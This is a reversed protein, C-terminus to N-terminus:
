LSFRKGITLGYVMPDVKVDGISTGNVKAEAKIAIWRIDIGLLWDNGLKFDGGAQVAGGFSNDITLKTGALAGTTQKDFFLTYNIGAGLYPDFAGGRNFHYQVGLTPPLQKVSGVKSGGANLYIDHKFPIAGLLDIALKDTVFLAGGVSLTANSGVHVTPNNNSTPAVDHVGARLVLDTAQAGGSLALATGVALFAHLRNM